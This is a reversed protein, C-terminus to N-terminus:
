SGQFDQRLGFRRTEHAFSKLLLSLTLAGPDVFGLSRDGLSKAKGTAAIMSKTAEAGEMAAAAADTVVDALSKGREAAAHAAEVAPLLADIMTKDGPNAKGRARVEDLGGALASAFSQPDLSDANLRKACGIFFSGFIVGSAGGSAMMIARGSIKFLSALDRSPLEKGLELRLAKFGRSMGVGHDGDGIAQDAKTLLSQSDIVAQAAAMLAARTQEFNLRHTM